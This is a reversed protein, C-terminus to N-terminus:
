LLDCRLTSTLIWGFINVMIHPLIQSSIHVLIYKFNVYVWTLIQTSLLKLIATFACRFKCRIRQWFGRFINVPNVGM